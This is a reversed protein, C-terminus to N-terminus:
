IFYLEGFHGPQHYDPQPTLVPNWTLYHPVPLMDGCKYFNATFRKGKLSDIRHHYFVELPIALTLSWETTRGSVTNIPKDGMTGLRRIHSIIEEPARKSDKRGTGSGLLCTGIANFELNYYIGDDAPSVFFEVCSDECVMQNSESKEAKFYEEKVYYKLLIERDTCAINFRVEPKYSFEKWNILDISHGKGKLDLRASVDAMSPQKSRFSEKKVQISNMRDQFNTGAGSGSELVQKYCFYFVLKLNGGVDMM